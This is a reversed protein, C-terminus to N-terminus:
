FVEQKEEVKERLEEIAEGDESEEASHYQSYYSHYYYYYDDRMVNINNLVVGLIRGGVNDVVRKARASMTRPYKRYQVVLLVADVESALISADSVGMLPPADFLVYDYRAKLNNVLDRMRQSDLLGLAARPLQGSPLLHLNPIKTPKVMEELSVDRMLLNTLGYRNSLGLFTHQVPRRLDSDVILVKDGLQACVYALNFLTTSKGEGVGGSVVAFAGGCVGKNSFQMNTRLMRYAEGHPSDPGEESLPRVKQPIIGIVPLGLYQEVDDVTRVSTDLYEVFYAMGVGLGLGMCVSIVINLFIKPSVNEDEKPVLATEIIEVPTRPIELEIGEQAVRARLARLIETQM